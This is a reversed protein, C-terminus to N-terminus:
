LMLSNQVTDHHEAPHGHQNQERKAANSISSRSGKADDNAHFLLKFAYRMVEQFAGLASFQLIFIPDIM